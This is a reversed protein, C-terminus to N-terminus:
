EVDNVDLNEAGVANANQLACRNSAMHQLAMAATGHLEMDATEMHQLAFTM